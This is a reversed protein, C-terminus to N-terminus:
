ECCFRDARGGGIAAPCKPEPHKNGSRCPFQLTLSAMLSFTQAPSIWAPIHCTIILERWRPRAAVPARPCQACRATNRSPRPNSSAANSRRMAALATPSITPLVVVSSRSSAMKLWNQMPLYCCFDAVSTRDGSSDKMPTAGIQLFKFINSARLRSCTSYTEVNSSFKSLCILWSNASSSLRSPSM